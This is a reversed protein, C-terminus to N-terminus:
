AMVFMRDLDAQLAGVTDQRAAIAELSRAVDQDVLDWRALRQEFQDLRQEVGRLGAVRDELQGALEDVRAVRGDATALASALRRLTEELQQASVAAEQREASTRKLDRAAEALAGQRQEIEQRLARTQEALAEM